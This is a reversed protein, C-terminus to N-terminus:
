YGVNVVGSTISIMRSFVPSITSTASGVPWPPVEVVPETILLNNPGFTETKISRTGSFWLILKWFQTKLKFQRRAAYLEERSILM